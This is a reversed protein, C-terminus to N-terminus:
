DRPVGHKLYREILKAITDPVATQGSAYRFSHRASIGLVYAARDHLAAVTKIRPFLRKVAVMYAAPTM